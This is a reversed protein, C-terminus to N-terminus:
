EIGDMDFEFEMDVDGDGNEPFSGDGTAQIKKGIEPHESFDLVEFRTRNASQVACVLRNSDIKARWVGTVQTVVDRIFRGYIPEMGTPGQSFGLSSGLNSNFPVISSLEDIRAQGYGSSSLEWVKVGGESGSVIRNSNQDLHFCTIAANHGSLQALCKGTMPCWIRLTTDAAASILYKPTLELLGVLSNHGELTHLLSGTVTCWIKVTADMSGSVARKLEHSYGVSYVKERHGTFVHLLTGLEINWVRVTTDYSGSVLINGQGSLARVSSTHGNLLFKFYPNPNSNVPTWPTDKEVLPLKWVRITTDRSGTVILAESPENTGNTDTPTIIQLCRVTSTHGNFIHTCVGTEMNWVRLTRDTSGSVLTDGIYQLAWVGGEHGILKKRLEGKQVDYIHITQDDSGSVIKDDDFSL